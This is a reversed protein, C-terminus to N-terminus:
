RSNPKELEEKLKKIEKKMEMMKLERGVALKQFKELERIKEQLDKTRQQVRQDLREALEKLERTRAKTRIRLITETEKQGKRFNNLRQYLFVTLILLFVNLFLSLKSFM